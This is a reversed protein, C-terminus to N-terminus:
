TKLVDTDLELIMLLSAELALKGPGTASKSAKYTQDLQGTWNEDFYKGV